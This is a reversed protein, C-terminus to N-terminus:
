SYVGHEIRTILRMVELAGTESALVDAPKQWNLARNKENLWQQAEEKNGEFLEVAKALVRIIRVLRESQDATFRDKISRNFTTNPIGSMKRLEGPTIQAWVSIQKAIEGELGLNIKDMLAIGDQEELGIVSWLDRPPNRSISPTFVKM